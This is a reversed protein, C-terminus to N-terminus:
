NIPILRVGGTKCVVALRSEDHSIAVVQSEFGEIEDAAGCPHDITKWDLKAGRTAYHVKGTLDRTIFHRGSAIVQHTQTQGFPALPLRPGLRGNTAVWGWAESMSADTVAVSGDAAVSATGISTDPRLELRYKATVVALGDGRAPPDHIVHEVYAAAEALVFNGDKFKAGDAVSGGRWVLLGECESACMLTISDDASFEAQVIHRRTPVRVRHGTRDVTFATRFTESSDSVMLGLALATGDARCGVRLTDAGADRWTGQLGLEAALAPADEILRTAALQTGDVVRWRRLWSGDLTVLEVDGPCFAVAGMKPRNWRIVEGSPKTDTGVASSAAHSRVSAVPKAEPTRDAGHSCAAFLAFALWRM